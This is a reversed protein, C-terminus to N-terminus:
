EDSLIPTRRMKKILGRRKKTEIRKRKSEFTPKTKHRKKPETAAQRILKVLRSIADKRNKVQSRYTSAQIILVKDATVKAGAIKILRERVKQPLNSSGEINFKLQVATSVKNVNQGGPGSSRVFDLDIDDESIAINPTVHIM